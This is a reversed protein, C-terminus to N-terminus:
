MEDSINNPDIDKVGMKELKRIKHMKTQLRKKFQLQENLNMIEMVDYQGINRITNTIMNDTLLVKVKSLRMFPKDDPKRLEEKYRYIMYPLSYPSTSSSSSKRESKLNTSKVETM